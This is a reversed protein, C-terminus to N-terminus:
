PRLDLSLFEQGSIGFRGELYAGMVGLILLGAKHDDGLPHCVVYLEDQALYVKGVETRGSQLAQRIVQYDSYNRAPGTGPVGEPHGPAPKREVFTVGKNNLVLVGNQLPRGDQSAQRYYDALAKQAAQPDDNQLPALLVGSLARLQARLEQALALAKPKEQTGDQGCGAAWVLAVAAVLLWPLRPLLARVM